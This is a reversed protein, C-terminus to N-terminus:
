FYTIYGTQMSENRWINAYKLADSKSVLPDGYSVYTHHYDSDTVKLAPLYCTTGQVRTTKYTATIM